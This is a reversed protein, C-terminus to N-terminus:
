KENKEKNFIWEYADNICSTVKKIFRKEQTCYVNWSILEHDEDYADEKMIVIKYSENVVIDVSDNYLGKKVIM